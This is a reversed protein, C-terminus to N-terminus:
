ENKILFLTDTEIRQDLVVCTVGDVIWTVTDFDAWFAARRKFPTDFRGKLSNFAPSTGKM